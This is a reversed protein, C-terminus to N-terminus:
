LERWCFFIVVSLVTLVFKMELVQGRVVHMQIGVGSDSGERGWAVGRWAVVVGDRGEAGKRGKFVPREHICGGYICTVLSEM